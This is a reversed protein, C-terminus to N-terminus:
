LRRILSCIFLPLRIETEGDVLRDPYISLTLFLVRVFLPL